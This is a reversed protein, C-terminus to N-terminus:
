GGRGAGVDGGRGRARRGAREEGVAPHEGDAGSAQDAEMRSTPWFGCSGSPRATKPIPEPRNWTPRSNRSRTRQRVRARPSPRIARATSRTSVATTASAIAEVKTSAM